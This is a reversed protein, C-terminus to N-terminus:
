SKKVESNWIKLLSTAQQAAVVRLDARTLIETDSEEQIINNLLIADGAEILKIAGDETGSNLINLARAYSSFDLEKLVCKYVKGEEATISITTKEQKM